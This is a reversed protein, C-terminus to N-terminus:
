LQARFDDLLANFADPQEMNAAHGCDEIVAATVAPNTAATRGAHECPWLESDRAAVVLAPVPLRAIVDRWDQFAHDVLLAKLHPTLQPPRGQGAAMRQLAALVRATREGRQDLPTGRGTPPIGQTFFTGANEQTFGYYGCDWDGANLMKPTQDVSVVGRVHRRVWEAGQLDCTAWISSAGQSGGILVADRLDLATILEALDTGHRAIRQGFPPDESLGHSRRDVAVIRARGALHDTQYVWSTAPALFGAVLVVVPGAGEDTYQLEVGDSTRFTTM